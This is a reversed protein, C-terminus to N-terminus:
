PRTIVQIKEKRQFQRELEALLNQHEQIQLRMDAQRQQTATNTKPFSSDDVEQASEELIELEDYAYQYKLRLLHVYAKMPFQFNGVEVEALIQSGPKEYLKYYEEAADLSSAQELTLSKELKSGQESAAMNIWNHQLALVNRLMKASGYLNMRKLQSVNELLCTCMLQPLNRMVFDVKAQPLVGSLGEQFSVLDQNLSMIYSDPEMPMTDLQYSGERTALDLFYFVHVRIELHLVYICLQALSNFNQLLTTFKEFLEPPFAAPARSSVGDTGQTVSTSDRGLTADLSTVDDLDLVVLKETSAASEGHREDSSAFLTANATPRKAFDDVSTRPKYKALSDQLYEVLITLSHHMTAISKAKNYDFLLESRHFSRDGKLSQELLTEQEGLFELLRAEEQPTLPDKAKELSQSMLQVVDQNEVWNSAIINSTELDESLLLGRVRAFCKDFYKGITFLMMEAFEVSNAPIAGLLKTFGDILFILGVTSKQMPLTQQMLIVPYSQRSEETAHKSKFLRFAHAPLPVFADEGSIYEMFYCLMKEEITPLFVSQVYGDMFASLDNGTGQPSAEHLELALLSQVRDSFTKTVPLLVAVIFPNPDVVLKHSATVKYASATGDPLKGAACNIGGSPDCAGPSTPLATRQVSSGDKFSSGAEILQRQAKVVQFLDSIAEQVYRVSTGAANPLGEGESFLQFLPRAYQDKGAHKKKNGKGFLKAIDAQMLAFAEHETLTAEQKGEADDANPASLKAGGAASSTVTQQANASTETLYTLLVSKVEGKMTQWVSFTTYKQAKMYEEANKTETDAAVSLASPAYTQMCLMVLQHNLLVSELRGFVRQFLTRVYFPQSNAVLPQLSQDWVYVSAAAGFIDALPSFNNEGFSRATAGTFASEKRVNQPKSRSAVASPREAHSSHTSEATERQIRENLVEVVVEEILYFLESSLRSKLAPITQALCGLLMLAAVVNVIQASTELETSDDKLDDLNPPTPFPTLPLRESNEVARVRQLKLRLSEASTRSYVLKNLHLIMKEPMSEGITQIDKRVNALAGVQEMEDRQLQKVTSLYLRAASLYQQNHLLVHLKYPAQRLEEIQDLVRLMGKYETIRIWLDVFESNELHLNSRSDLIDGKTTRIRQQSDKIKDAVLSFTHISSNFAGHYLNVIADMASELKSEFSVFEQLDRRAKSELLSLAFPVPNFTDHRMIEWAGDVERLVVEVEEPLPQASGVQESSAYVNFSM